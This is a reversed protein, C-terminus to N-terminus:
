AAEPSLSGAVFQFAFGLRCEKIDIEYRQINTRGLGVITQFILLFSCM